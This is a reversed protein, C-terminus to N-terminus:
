HLLKPYWLFETEAKHDQVRGADTEQDLDLVDGLHHVNGAVVVIEVTAHDQPLLHDNIALNQIQATAHFTDWSVVSIVDYTPIMLAVSVVGVECEQVLRPVNSM